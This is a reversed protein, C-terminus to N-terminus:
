SLPPHDRVGLSSSPFPAGPSCQRDPDLGTLPLGKGATGPCQPRSLITVHRKSGTPSSGTEVSQYRPRTKLLAPTPPCAAHASACPPLPLPVKSQGPCSCARDAAATCHVTIFQLCRVRRLYLYIMNTHRRRTVQKYFSKSERHKCPVSKCYVSSLSLRDTCRCPGQM